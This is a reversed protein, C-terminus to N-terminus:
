VISTNRIGKLQIRNLHCCKCMKHVDRIWWMTDGMMWNKITHIIMQYKWTSDRWCFGLSLSYKLGSGISRKNSACSINWWVWRLGKNNEMMVKVDHVSSKHWWIWGQSYITVESVMEGLRARGNDLDGDGGDDRPCM